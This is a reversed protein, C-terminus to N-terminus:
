VGKIRMHGPSRGVALLLLLFCLSAVGRSVIGGRILPPIAECWAPLAFRFVDSGIPLDGDYGGGRNAAGKTPLLTLRV